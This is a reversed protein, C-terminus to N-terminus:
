ASFAPSVWAVLRKPSSREAGRVAREIAADDIDRGFTRAYTDHRRRNGSGHFCVVLYHQGDTAAAPDKGDNGPRAAVQDAQPNGVRERQRIPTSRYLLAASRRNLHHPM